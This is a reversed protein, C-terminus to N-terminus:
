PAPPTYFLQEAYLWGEPAKRWVNMYRFRMVQDPAARPRIEADGIAVATAGCFVRIDLNSIEFSEAWGPFRGNQFRGLVADAEVRSGDLQVSFWEPAFFARAEEITWGTVNIEAGRLELRRVEEVDAGSTAGAPCTVAPAPPAPPQTACASLLIALPALIRM